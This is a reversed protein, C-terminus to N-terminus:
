AHMNIITEVSKIIDTLEVRDKGPWNIFITDIAQLILEMLDWCSINLLKLISHNEHTWHM